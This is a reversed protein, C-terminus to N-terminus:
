LGVYVHSPFEYGSGLDGVHVVLRASFFLQLLGDDDISFSALALYVGLWLHM